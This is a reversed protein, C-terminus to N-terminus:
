ASAPELYLSQQFNLSALASKYSEQKQLDDQLLTTFDISFNSRFGNLGISFQIKAKKVCQDWLSGEKHLIKVLDECSLRGYNTIVNRFIDIEFESFKNEDFVRDRPKILISEELLNQPNQVKEVLVYDDLSFENGKFSETKCLTIENYIEEAVPGFKWVKHDLWTIPVGTEKVAIEDIIYLLKLAKTLYLNSVKNGLLLLINGIKDNILERFM